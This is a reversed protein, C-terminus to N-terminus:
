FSADFRLWFGNHEPGQGAVVLGHHYHLGVSVAENVSLIMGAGVQTRQPKRALWLQSGHYLLARRGIDLSPVLGAQWSESTHQWQRQCSQSYICLPKLQAQELASAESVASLGCWCVLSVIMQLFKM